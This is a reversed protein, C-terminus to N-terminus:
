MGVFGMGRGRGRPTGRGSDGGQRWTVSRGGACVAKADTGSSCLPRSVEDLADFSVDVSRGCGAHVRSSGSVHRRLTSPM